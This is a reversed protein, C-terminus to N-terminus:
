FVAASASDFGHLDARAVPPLKVKRDPRNLPAPQRKGDDPDICARWPACSEVRYRFFKGQATM